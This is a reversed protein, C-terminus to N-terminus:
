FLFKRLQKGAYERADETEWERYEPAVSEDICRRYAARAERKRGVKRYGAALELLMEPDTPALGAGRELLELARKKDGISVIPPLERYLTGLMMYAEFREPEDRLMCELFGRAEKAGRLAAKIGETQRSMFTTMAHWYRGDYDGPDLTLVRRAAEVGRSAVTRKEQQNSLRHACYYATLACLIQMRRDNPFRGALRSTMEAAKRHMDLQARRSYVEMLAEWKAEPVVTMEPTMREEGTNFALAMVDTLCLGTVATTLLRFRWDDIPKCGARRKSLIGGAQFGPTTIFPTVTRNRRNRTERGETTM